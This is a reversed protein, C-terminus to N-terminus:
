APPLGDENAGAVLNAAEVASPDAVVRMGDLGVPSAFGATLGLKRGMAEDMAELTTAKLANKLKVDNVDLDGRIAVFLPKGDAKYFVAKLTQIPGVGLFAAM